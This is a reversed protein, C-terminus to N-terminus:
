VCVTVREERQEQSSRKEKILRLSGQRLVAVAIPSLLPKPPFNHCAFPTLILLLHSILLYAYGCMCVCVCVCVGYLSGWCTQPVHTANVLPGPVFQPFPPQPLVQPFTLANLPIPAFSTANFVGFKFVTGTACPLMQYTMRFRLGPHPPSSPHYNLM